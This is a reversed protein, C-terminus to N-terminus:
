QTASNDSNDGTTATTTTTTSSATTSGGGCKQAMCAHAPASATGSTSTSYAELAHPVDTAACDLHVADCGVAEILSAFAWMCVCWGTGPNPAECVNDKWSTQGTIGWFTSGGWDLANCSGDQGISTLTACVRHTPDHNCKFDGYRDGEGACPAIAGVTAPGFLLGAVAACILQKFSM